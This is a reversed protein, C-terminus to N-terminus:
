FCLLSHLILFWLSLSTQHHQLSDAHAVVFRPICDTLPVHLKQLGELALLLRQVVLQLRISLLYPTSPATQQYTPIGSPTGPLLPTPTRTIPAPFLCYRLMRRMECIISSPDNWFFSTSQLIRFSVTSPVPRSWRIPQRVFELSSDYANHIRNSTPVHTM